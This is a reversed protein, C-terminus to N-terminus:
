RRWITPGPTLPPSPLLLRLHHDADRSSSRERPYGLSVEEFRVGDRWDTAPVHLHGSVVVIARYRRHWDETARTGCWPIYRPVRPIRVLDCRLPWHNILVTPTSIGDLRAATYALREACWAERSPYPDPHLLEEDRARIGDRAAWAVAATPDLGDPAFSYDYLLFLPCLTVTPDGPWAPYPDEPTLVGRRRCLEVLGLYRSLGRPADPGESPLTWLEHNGPVWILKAFRDQLVDFTWELHAPREGVDGALILWDDPHPGIQEILTRNEPHGVHLDSLAFLRPM